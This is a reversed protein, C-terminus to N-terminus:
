KAAGAAIQAMLKARAAKPENGTAQSWNSVIAVVLDQEPVLTISQGFIGQAGYGNPYVWWQYGYGYGGGFETAPTSADTFWDNPVVGHGGELVFQGFRAYDSLRVSLCCGGINGGTLDQMWFLRGAFGAPDVIKDRAYAALPMGVAEEVILGLLNTELTKYVWKTGPAAETKLTRAYTVVQSEGEVPAINLMQAVDSEPDTYDENWAVGSTMTAVQGVTVLEYATGKLEPVYTTVLADIDIKGDKIAAGLLTSTFSKAVSFSTWRDTPKMGLAYDEYRVKGDQLVMIGATGHDALYADIAARTADDFPAGKALQRPSAAPSVELGAFYDEMARFRESRTDSDWFLPGGDEQSAAVTPTSQVVDGPAQASAAANFDGSPACASLAMALAAISVTFKRM